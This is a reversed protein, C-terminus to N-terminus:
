RLEWQRWWFQMNITHRNCVSCTAMIAVIINWLFMVILLWLDNSMLIWIYLLTNLQKRFDTSHECQSWSDPLAICQPTFKKKFFSESLSQLSSAHENRHPPPETRSWNSPLRGQHFHNILTWTSNWFHRFVRVWRIWQLLNFKLQVRVLVRATQKLPCFRNCYPLVRGESRKGETSQCQQNPTLFLM